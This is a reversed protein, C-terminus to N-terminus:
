DFGRLNQHLPLNTAKRDDFVSTEDADHCLRVEDGQHRALFPLDVVQKERLQQATKQRFTSSEADKDSDEVKLLRNFSERGASNLRPRFSRPEDGQGM